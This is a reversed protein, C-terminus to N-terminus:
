NLLRFRDLLAVYLRGEEYLKNVEAVTDEFPVSRDPAHLYMVRVKDRKLKDLSTMFTSRLPGPAHDGPKVPYVRIPFSILILVQSELKSRVQHRYHCEQSWAAIADVVVNLATWSKLLRVWM